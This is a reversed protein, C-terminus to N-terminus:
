SIQSKKLKSLHKAFYALKFLNFLSLNVYCVSLTAKFIFNILPYINAFVVKFKSNKYFYLLTVSKTFEDDAQLSYILALNEIGQKTKRIFEVNTEVDGNLVPNEIHMPIIGQKLLDYGFLTDEHGYKSLLENFKVIEFVEKKIVFNNTMFSKSPNKAREVSPKSEVLRGYSWSLLYKTTPKKKDYVRGGCIVSPQQEISEIYNSIFGGNQIISDCDLFLLYAYKAKEALLNRIRARGINEPLEIFNVSAIDKIPENMQKYAADSGDDYVLLEFDVESKGLQYNLESILQVVNFNYVPICVSLM